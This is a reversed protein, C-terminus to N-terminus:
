LTSPAPVQMEQVAQEPLPPQPMEMSPYPNEPSPPPLPSPAFQNQAVQAQEPFSAPMESAPPAAPVEPEPNAAPPAVEKQAIELRADVQRAQAALFVEPENAKLVTLAADFEQGQIVGTVATSLFKQTLCFGNISDLDVCLRLSFVSFAEATRSFAYKLRFGYNGHSAVLQSFPDKALNKMLTLVEAQTREFLATIRAGSYSAEGVRAEIRILRSQLEAMKESHAKGLPASLLQFFSIAEHHASRLGDLNVTLPEAPSADANQHAATEEAALAGLPLLLMGLALIAFLNLRGM